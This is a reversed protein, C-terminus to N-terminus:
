AFTIHNQKLVYKGDTVKLKPKQLIERLLGYSWYTIIIDACNLVELYILYNSLVIYLCFWGKMKSLVIFM